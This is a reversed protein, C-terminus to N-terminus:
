LRVRYDPVGRGAGRLAFLSGGLRDADGTMMRATTIYLVDLGERGWACTTINRAPLEVVRDVMGEPTVRVVCGGGWRCSWLCGEADIAAGDPVGRTFGTFFPRENAVMGTAEDYDWRWISNRDPSWAVTNSIGIGRKHETVPGGGPGIRVLVGLDPPVEGPEGNPGVNNGMSGIWFAGDPGARGDNLRSEPWGPHRYGHDGRSDDEPRWLVLRSGIGVLMTGPESTLSLAVVPEDWLWSRVDGSRPDYSHTLFRNVDTWYVRGEDANWCAAEGCWDGVPAVCTLDSM